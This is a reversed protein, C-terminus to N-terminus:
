ATVDSLLGLKTLREATLRVDEVVHEPNERLASVAEEIDGAPIDADRLFFRLGDEGQLYVDRNGEPTFTVRYAATAPARAADTRLIYVYGADQRM